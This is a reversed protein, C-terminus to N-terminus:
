HIQLVKNRSSFGSIIEVKKKFRKRFFKIIEKNARNNEPPAAVRIRWADRAKDYAIIETKPSNPRVIVKVRGFALMKSM